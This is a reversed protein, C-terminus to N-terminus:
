GIWSGTRDLVVARDSLCCSTLYLPLICPASSRAGRVKDAEVQAVLDIGPPGGTREVIVPDAHWGTTLPSFGDWRRERHQWIWQHLRGDEDRFIIDPGRAAVAAEFPLREPRIPDPGWWRTPDPGAFYGYGWHRLTGDGLRGYVDQRVFGHDDTWAIAAVSAMGSELTESRPLLVPAHWEGSRSCTSGQPERHVAVPEAFRDVRGGLDLAGPVGDALWLHVLTAERSRVFIDLRGPHLYSAGPKGFIAM